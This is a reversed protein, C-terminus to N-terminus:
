LSASVHEHDRGTLIARAHILEDDGVVRLCREILSTSPIPTVEDPEAEEGLGQLLM